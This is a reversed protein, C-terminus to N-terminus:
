LAGFSRLLGLDATLAIVGGVVLLAAAAFTLDLARVRQPRWSTRPGRGLGRTEMTITLREGRRIAVALLSVTARLAFGLPVKPTGDRRRAQPRRVAHANVLTRWQEPLEQLIRYGALVAFCVRTPVRLNQRLSDIFAPPATTRVLLIVGIGAVFTRMALAVGIALGERSFHLPGLTALTAGSRTLTNVLVLGIAFVAFPIHGLALTRLPVSRDALTAALLIGYVITPTWPDFVPLLALSIALLVILKVSPNIRPALRM